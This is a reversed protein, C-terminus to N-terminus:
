GVRNLLVAQLILRRRQDKSAEDGLLDALAATPHAATAVGSFVPIGAEARLQQVLAPDLDQCELADYLRGLLRATRALDQPPDSASFAHGVHAVRAGLAVAASRFLQADASDEAACLLGFQKGQLLSATAPDIAARHLARATALLTRVEDESPHESGTIPRLKSLTPM